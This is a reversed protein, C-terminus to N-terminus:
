GRFQQALALVREAARAFVTDPRLTALVKAIEQLREEILKASAKGTALPEVYRLTTFSVGARVAGGSVAPLTTLHECIDAFVHMVEVAGWICLRQEEGTTSYSQTLLRLLQAYLANAADLVPRAESASIYVVDSGPAPRRMVPHSVVDRAPVFQANRALLGNYSERIAVFRDYHCAGDGTKSGEGEAVLRDIAELASALSTVACSNPLRANEASLQHKSDGVFLAKEGLVDCADTFANKLEQYFDGITEYDVAAPFLFHAPAGRPPAITDAADGELPADHSREFSIFRSLTEQNFPSLGLSIGGPFYGMPVPFNPRNFHPAGGIAVLLNNVVVLHAMEDRAIQYLTKRWALVEELEAPDLGEDCSRKLSFAAYLYSCLVSHELESAETLIHFLQERTRAPYTEGSMM